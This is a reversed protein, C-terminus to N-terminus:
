GLSESNVLRFWRSANHRKKDPFQQDNCGRVAQEEMRLVRLALLSHLKVIAGRRCQARELLVQGLIRGREFGM